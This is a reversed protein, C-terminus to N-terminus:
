KFTAAGSRLQALLNETAQLPDGGQCDALVARAEMKNTLHNFRSVELRVTYNAPPRWSAPQAPAVGNFPKSEFRAADAMRREHAAKRSKSWAALANFPKWVGFESETENM